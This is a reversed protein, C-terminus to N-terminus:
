LAAFSASVCCEDNGDLVLVDVWFTRLPRVLGVRGPGM